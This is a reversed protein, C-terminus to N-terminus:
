SLLVLLRVVLVLIIYSKSVLALTSRGSLLNTFSELNIVGLAYAVFYYYFFLLVLNKCRQTLPMIMLVLSMFPSM